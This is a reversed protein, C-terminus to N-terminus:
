TNKKDIKYAQSHIHSYM